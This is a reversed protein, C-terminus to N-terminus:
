LKVHRSSCTLKTTRVDDIEMGKVPEFSASLCWDRLSAVWPEIAGLQDEISKSVDQPHTVGKLHEIISQIYERQSIPSETRHRAEYAEVFCLFMRYCSRPEDTCSFPKSRFNPRYYSYRSYSRRLHCPPRM